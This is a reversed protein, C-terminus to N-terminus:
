LLSMILVILVCIKSVSDFIVVTNCNVYEWHIIPFHGHKFFHAVIPLTQSKIGQLYYQNECMQFGIINLKNWKHDM